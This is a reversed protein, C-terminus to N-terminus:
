HENWRLVCLSFGVKRISKLGKIDVRLIETEELDAYM